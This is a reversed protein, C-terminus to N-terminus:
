EGAKKISIGQLLPHRTEEDIKQFQASLVIDMGNAINFVNRDFRVKVVGIAKNKEKVILNFAVRGGELSLDEIKGQWVVQVGEYFLPFNVLESYDVNDPLGFNERVATFQGLIRFKEKVAITSNSHLVKNINFLAKNYLAKKLLEKTSRFLALVEEPNLKLISRTVSRDIIYDSGEEPMSVKEIDELHVKHVATVRDRGSMRVIFVAALVIVLLLVAASATRLFNLKFLDIRLGKRIKFSIFEEAAATKVLKDINKTQRVKDLNRKAFYNGKDLDLIDLWYNVAEEVRNSRLNLFALANLVNADNESLRHAKLLYNYAEDFLGRFIYTLGLYYYSSPNTNDNSNYEEFNDIAGIFDGHKLLRIGNHLHKEFDM